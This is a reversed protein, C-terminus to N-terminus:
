RRKRREAAAKCIYCSRGWTRRGEPTVQKKMVWIRCVGTGLGLLGPSDHGRGGELSRWMAFRM